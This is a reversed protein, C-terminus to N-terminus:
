LIRLTNSYLHTLENEDLHLTWKIGRRATTSSSVVVRRRKSENVDFGFSALVEGNRRMNEERREEAESIRM